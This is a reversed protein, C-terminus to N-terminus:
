LALNGKWMDWYEVPSMQKLLELEMQVYLVGSEMCRLKFYVEIEM